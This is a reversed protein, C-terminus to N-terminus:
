TSSPSGCFVRVLPDDDDDISAPEPSASTEAQRMRRLIVRYTEPLIRVFRTREVVYHESGAYLAVMGDEPLLVAVHAHPTQLIMPAGTVDRAAWRGCRALRRGNIRVSPDSESEAVTVAAEDFQLHPGTGSGAILVNTGHIRQLRLFSGRQSAVEHAEHVALLLTSTNTSM